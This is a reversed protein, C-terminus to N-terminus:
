YSENKAKEERIKKIESFFELPAVYSWSESTYAYENPSDNLQIEPMTGYEAVVYENEIHNDWFVCLEGDEPIWVEFNEEIMDEYTAIIFKSSVDRVYEGIKFKKM